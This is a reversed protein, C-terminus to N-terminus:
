PHNRILTHLDVATQNAYNMPLAPKWTAPVSRYHLARISPKSRTPWSATASFTASINAIM